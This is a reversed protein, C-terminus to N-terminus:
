DQEHTLWGTAQKALEELLGLVEKERKAPVFFHDHNFGAIVNCPIGRSAITQSIMATIGVATLSTSTRPTIRTFVLDGNLGYQLAEVETVVVTLGEAERIVAFPELGAPVADVSAFVYRGEAHADLAALSEDLDDFTKM